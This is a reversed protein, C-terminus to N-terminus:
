GLGWGVLHWGALLAGLSVAAVALAAYQLRVASSWWRGLWGAAVLAATGAGLVVVALPLHLALREAAPLELWGLFGADVLGPLWALLAVTALVVLATAGAVMAAVGRRSAAARPAPSRRVARALAGGLWCLAALAAAGLIAWQWPAPGDSVRALRFSRWTPVPGRLDLTEGDDALFLGPELEALRHRAFSGTRDEGEFYPVGADVLFRAPPGELELVDWALTRYLGSYAAWRTAEDGRAPMAAGAVLSALGAPPAFSVNPDEVGARGSFALARERYAGPERMLDTLISVSLENQLQHDDSNTLVAVGIGVEPAWWLDALFGYGGGGHELLDPWTKWRHRVIGLAYGAPAGARSPPVTQMEDLWKPGLVVRGDITGDSLQFRLFRALDRASAYLGGAGTMAVDVPPDPYPDVHGVARNGASRIATRDFTSREMGLPELLSKRMVEPFPKGEVRALIHGALDIGLNSYAYGSGVPFRLWTDSISRVHAGFDGPDLENNNGVPAEHTFGATHSLLMRLTIKREPHEEFASHVTFGPLYTTIPEDLDLRGAAAAQVVATATFLKSMSQVSFITDANVPASGPEDVHGFGEVWLTRDRDVVAIALGPIGQEAM